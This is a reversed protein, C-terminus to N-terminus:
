KADLPHVLETEIGTETNFMGAEGSGTVAVGEAINKPAEEFKFPVEAFLVIRQYVVGVSPVGSPPLGLPTSKVTVGSVVVM